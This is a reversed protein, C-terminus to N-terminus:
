GAISRMLGAIWLLAAAVLAHMERHLFFCGSRGSHIAQLLLGTEIVKNPFEVGFPWM